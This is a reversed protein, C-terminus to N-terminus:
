PRKAQKPAQAAQWVKKSEREREERYSNIAASIRVGKGTNRMDFHMMYGYAGGWDLGIGEVLEKRLDLFGGTRIEEESGTRQWLWVAQQSFSPSWV